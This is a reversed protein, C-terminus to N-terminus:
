VARPCTYFQSKSRSGQFTPGTCMGAGLARLGDTGSMGNLSSITTQTFLSALAGKHSQINSRCANQLSSRQIYCPQIVPIWYLGRINFSFLGPLRSCRKLLMAKVVASPQHWDSSHQSDLLCKQFISLKSGSSPSPVRSFLQCTPTTFSLILGFSKLKTFSDLCLGTWSVLLVSFHPVEVVIIFWHLRWM